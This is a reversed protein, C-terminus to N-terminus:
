IFVSVPECSVCSDSLLDATSSFSGAEVNVSAIHVDVNLDDVVDGSFGKGCCRRYFFFDAFHNFALAFGFGRFDDARFGCFARDGCADGFSDRICMEAAPM